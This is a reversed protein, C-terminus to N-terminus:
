VIRNEYHFRLFDQFVEMEILEKSFLKLIFSKDSEFDVNEESM